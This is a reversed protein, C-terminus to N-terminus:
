RPPCNFSKSYGASFTASAMAFTGTISPQARTEGSRGVPLGRRIGTCMSPSGDARATVM